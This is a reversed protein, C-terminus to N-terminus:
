TTKTQLEAIRKRLHSVSHTYEPPLVALEKELDRATWTLQLATSDYFDYMEILNQLPLASLNFANNERTLKLMQIYLDVAEAIANKGASSAASRKLFDYKLVFLQFEVEKTREDLSLARESVEHLLAVKTAEFMANTSLVMESAKADLIEKQELALEHKISERQRGSVVFGSVINVGLIVVVVTAITGLSWYVTALLSDTYSQVTELQARLLAIEVSDTPTPAVSPTATPQPTATPVDTATPAPTAVDQAATPGHLACLLAFALLLAYLRRPYM